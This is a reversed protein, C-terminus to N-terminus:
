YSEFFLLTHSVNKAQGSTDHFPLKSLIAELTAQMQAKQADMNAKMRAIEEEQQVRQDELREELIKLEKSVKNRQENAEDLQAQMGMKRKASKPGYNQSSKEGVVQQFAENTTM